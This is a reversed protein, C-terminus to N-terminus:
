ERITAAPEIRGGPHRAQQAQNSGASRISSRAGSTRHFALRGCGVLVPRDRRTGSGRDGAGCGGHGAVMCRGHRSRGRLPQVATVQEPADHRLRFGKSSETVMRDRLDEIRLEDSMPLVEGRGQPRRRTRLSNWGSCQSGTLADFTELPLSDLRMAVSQRVAKRALTMYHELPVEDGSPTIVRESQGVVSLATAGYAAMQQDELALGDADWQRCRLKVRM